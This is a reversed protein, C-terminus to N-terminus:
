RKEEVTYNLKGIINIIDKPKVNKEDYTVKTESRQYNTASTVGLIDELEGDINIACSTCHMGTITFIKTTM